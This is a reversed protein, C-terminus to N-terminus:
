RELSGRIVAAVRDWTTSDIPGTVDRSGWAQLTIRGLPPAEVPSEVMLAFQYSREDTKAFRAVVRGLYKGERESRPRDDKIPPDLAVDPWPLIGTLRTEFFEQLNRCLAQRTREM